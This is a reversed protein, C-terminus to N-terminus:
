RGDWRGDQFLLLYVILALPTNDNVLDKSLFFCCATNKSNAEAPGLCEINCSFDIMSYAKSHQAPVVIQQGM